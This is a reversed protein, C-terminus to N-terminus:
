DSGEGSEGGTEGEGTVEGNTGEQGEAASASKPHAVKYDKVKLLADEENAM